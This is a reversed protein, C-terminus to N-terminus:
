PVEIKEYGKWIIEKTSARQIGHFENKDQTFRVCQAFVCNYHQEKLIIHLRQNVFICKINRHGKEQGVEMLTGPVQDCKKPKLRVMTTVSM